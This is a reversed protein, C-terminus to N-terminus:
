CNDSQGSPNTPQLLRAWSYDRGMFRSLVRAAMELM